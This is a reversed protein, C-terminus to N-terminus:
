VFVNLQQSLFCFACVCIFGLCQIINFSSSPSAFEVIMKMIICNLHQLSMCGCIGRAVKLECEVRCGSLSISSLKLWKTMKLLHPWPGACWTRLCLTMTTDAPHRAVAILFLFWCSGFHNPIVYTWQVRTDWHSNAHTHTHTNRKHHSTDAGLHM